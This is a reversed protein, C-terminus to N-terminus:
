NYEGTRRSTNLAKTAPPLCVEGLAQLRVRNEENDEGNEDSQMRDVREEVTTEGYAECSCLM